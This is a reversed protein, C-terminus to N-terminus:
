EYVEENMSIVEEIREVLSFEEDTLYEGSKGLKSLILKLESVTLRVEIRKSM